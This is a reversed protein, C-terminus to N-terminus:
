WRCCALLLMAFLDQFLLVALSVRAQPSDSEKREEYGKMVLATSSFGVLVGIIWSELWSTGLLKMLIATVFTVLFM